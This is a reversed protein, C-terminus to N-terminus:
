NLQNHIHPLPNKKKTKMEKEKKKIKKQASREFVSFFQVWKEAVGGAGMWGNFWWGFDKKMGWPKKDGM